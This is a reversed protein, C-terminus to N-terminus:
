ASGIYQSVIDNRDQGHGLESKLLSRAEMDLNRWDAGKVREAEERFVERSSFKVPPDFGTLGRYRDQAYAHRLGHASAKSNVKSLGYDRITRYFLANWQRESIGPAMTNGGPSYLKSLEIANRGQDSIFHIIRERGGKTGAAVLVSGNSLVSKCPNFKFSEEKRLGLTRQLMLQVAIRHHNEDSSGKLNVVAKEYAENPMSKDMNTVYVRNEIGFVSNERAIRDNGFHNAIRGVGSLYEKITATKLNEKKWATVVAGVHKNTIKEWRQVGFGAARLTGIFRQAERLHNHRTKFSGAAVRLAEVAGTLLSDDKKGM